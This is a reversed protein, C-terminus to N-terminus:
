RVVFPHRFVLQGNGNLVRVEWTGASQVDHYGGMRFGSEVRTDVTEPKSKEKVGDRLWEFTLKKSSGAVYWVKVGIRQGTSFTSTLRASDDCPYGPCVGAKLVTGVPAPDLEALRVRDAALTPGHGERVATVGDVYAQLAARKIQVTTNADAGVSDARARAAILARSGDLLATLDEARGGTGRLLEGHLSDVRLIRSRLAADSVSDSRAAARADSFAAIAAEFSASSRTVTVTTRQKTGASDGNSRVILPWIRAIGPKMGVLHFSGAARHTSDIGVISPDDSVLVIRDGSVRMAETADAVPTKRDGALVEYAIMTEGGNVLPVTDATTTLRVDGIAAAKPRTMLYAGGAGAIAIVIAGIIATRAFSGGPAPLPEVRERGNPAQDGKDRLRPAPPAPAPPNPVTAEREAIPAARKDEIAGVPPEERRTFQGTARAQSVTTGDIRFLVGDPSRMHLVPTGWEVSHPAAFSVAKRADSVAADIPLGDAIAEYLSRSFEIAADDSIEFQMAVVAPLGRGVLVASTSSMADTSSGKAGLCSNLVALRLTHHDSLLRAVATAGIMSSKGEEDTFLLVGEGAASDFGGHGVFHFIHFRQRRMAQQLHRWTSGELWEIRMLGAKRLPATAIEIRQRERAVDLAPRDNPSAIMVLLSLPPKVTVASPPQDFELYRVVPTDTSLCVYDREQPDYMYEWPLASLEPAEIRLRVRLGKNEARARDQSRRFAVQLEPTFLAQFLQQGFDIVGRTEEPDVMAKRRLSGSRLLANQLGLMQNDLALRDFPFRMTGSPEGAPSRVVSVPYDRGNGTAIRLEFDLYDVTAERRDLPSAFM